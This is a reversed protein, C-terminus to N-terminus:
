AVTTGVEGRGQAFDTSVASREATPVTFFFTSGRAPASEVWVRGGHADVIGKVIPLGLGAGSRGAARAQWFRDFLHAQDEISIGPGEDSVWFLVDHEGLAAGVTIAGSTAFKVANGILNEFVQLLRERDARIDPLHEPLDRRLELGSSAVLARQQDCADPALQAAPIRSPTIALRSAELRTVDLLDQILHNMRRAARAIADASELSEVDM